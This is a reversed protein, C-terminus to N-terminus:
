DLQALLERIAKGSIPDVLEPLIAALPELVFRRQRFRPHPLELTASSYRDQGWLILDIDLPRAEWRVRRTRGAQRELSLALELLQEPLLTVAACRAALCQNLYAGQGAPGGVAAYEGISSILEPM